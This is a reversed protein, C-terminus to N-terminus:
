NHVTEKLQKAVEEHIRDDMMGELNKIADLMIVKNKAQETTILDLVKSEIDKMSENIQKQIIKKTRFM